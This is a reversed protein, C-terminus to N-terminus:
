RKFHDNKYRWIYGKHTKRRGKCCDAIYKNNFKNAINKRQADMSSEYEAILEGDLSYQLVPKCNAKGQKICVRYDNEQSYNKKYVWNYGGATKRYKSGSAVEQITRHNINTKRSAEMISEYECIYEGEKTLQVVPTKIKLYDVKERNKLCATKRLISEHDYLDNEVAHQINEARTCWELNSDKYNNKSCGCYNNKTKGDKHNVEPKNHPNPVFAKAALIHAYTKNLGSLHISYYRNGETGGCESLDEFWIYREKRKIRRNAKDIFQYPLVHFDGYNSVEYQEEFGEIARWELNERKM